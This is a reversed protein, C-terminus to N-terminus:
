GLVETAFEFKRLVHDAGGGEHGSWEYVDMSKPGGYHHYAAYVTSPPTVTDALGVSFLAPATSRRAHNVVDIYSLNHFARDVLDKHSRCYDALEAYPRTDTVELARRFHALFPVDSMVGSVEALHGAALALGGGQSGGTVLVRADDVAPHSRAARVAHAADIMLRVYYQDGPEGGLGRTLFGPASPVGRDGPDPTDGRSWSSGQGRTDMVLHAYGAASWLLWEHPFSRGGGYGIFEVIAPLPGSRVAPLLLWAKVETGGHGSFSADLVEVSKLPGDITTFTPESWSRAAEDLRSQWFEDFDAPIAVEPRYAELEQRGLDKLM